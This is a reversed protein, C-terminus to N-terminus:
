NYKKKVIVFMKEQRAFAKLIFSHFTNTRYLVVYFSKNVQITIDIM